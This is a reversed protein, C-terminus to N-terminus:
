KFSLYSIRLNKQCPFVRTLLIAMIVIILYQLVKIKFFKKKLKNVSWHCLNSKRALARIWTNLQINMLYTNWVLHESTSISQKQAYQVAVSAYNSCFLGGELLEQFPGKIPLNPEYNKEMYLSKELAVIKKQM